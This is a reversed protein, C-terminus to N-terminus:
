SENKMVELPDYKCIISRDKEDKRQMDVKFAGKNENFSIFYIILDFVMFIHQGKPGRIRVTLQGAGAGRTDCVFKSEYNKLVGHCIGPGYVDVKSADPPASVRLTFPSGPVHAGMYKIVLVHKGCERPTVKLAYVGSAIDAREVFECLAPQANASSGGGICTATLEGSAGAERTDVLTILEQNVVAMKLDDRNILIKNVAEVVVSDSSPDQATLTANASTQVSATASDSNPSTAEGDLIKVQFPSGSIHTKNFKINIQYQGKIINYILINVKYLVIKHM